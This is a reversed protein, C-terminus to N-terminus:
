ISGCEGVGERLSVLVTDPACVAVCASLVWGGVNVCAGTPGRQDQGALKALGRATGAEQGGSSRAAGFSQGLGGVAWCPTCTQVRM